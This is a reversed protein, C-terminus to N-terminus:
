GYVLTAGHPVKRKLDRCNGPPPQQGAPRDPYWIRCEGPPPLHGNPIDAHEHSQRRSQPGDMGGHAVCGMLGVAMSIALTVKSMQYYNTRM